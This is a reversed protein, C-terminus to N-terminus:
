SADVWAEPLHTMAAMPEFLPDLNPRFVNGVLVHVVNERQDPHQKLFRAISFDQDYFAYVLKRVAEMGKLFEGNFAGLRTASLDDAEFSDVIADAAMEGSKLALFVGSSYLPDVFGFADGVLVWGDGARQRSRYTFDRLVKPPEMQEAGAIRRQIGACLAVEEDFIEQPTGSRGKVLYDLPGVVGVSVVDDPLPIYWFWSEGRQTHLVVTAGENLGEDRHGGKFHTFISANRLKPDDEQLKLRRAMLANQGSADVVVRAGIEYSEGDRSRTKVGVARDGDFLVERVGVEQHAEAGHAVANDFLMTDFEERVVQWTQPHDIVDSEAFFFPDSEKGSSSVFQVSHKEVFRSSKLQDIMGLRELTSWCEPMLSEGIKFRPFRDRELLLTSLGAKATLTATTSGAPGGGIVVVDYQAAGFPSEASGTSSSSSASSNPNMANM